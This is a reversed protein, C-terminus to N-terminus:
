FYFERFREYVILLYMNMLFLLTRVASERQTERISRAIFHASLLTATERVMFLLVRFVFALNYVWSSCFVFAFVYGNRKHTSSLTGVNPTRHLTNTHQTYTIHIHVTLLTFYQHKALSVNKRGIDTFYKLLIRPGHM